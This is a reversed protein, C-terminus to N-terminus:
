DMIEGYKVLANETQIIGFNIDCRMFVDGVENECIGPYNSECYYSDAKLGLQKKCYNDIAPSFNEEFLSTSESIVPEGQYAYYMHILTKTKEEYTLELTDEKNQIIVNAFSLAIPQSDIMTLVSSRELHIEGNVVLSSFRDFVNKYSEFITNFLADLDDQIRDDNAKDFSSYFNGGINLENNCYLEAVQKSTIKKNGRVDYNRYTKKQLLSEENQKSLFRPLFIVCVTILILLLIITIRKIKSM